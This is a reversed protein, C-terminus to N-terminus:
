PLRSCRHSQSSRIITPYICSGIGTLEFSVTKSWLSALPAEGKRPLSNM